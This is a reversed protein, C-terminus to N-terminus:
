NLPPPRGSGSQATTSETEPLVQKVEQWFCFMFKREGVKVQLWVVRADPVTPMFVSGGVGQGPFLTTRRFAGTWTMQANEIGGITAANGANTSDSLNAAAATNQAGGSHGHAAAGVDAVAGLMVLVAGATADNAAKATQISHQVELNDIVTEPDIVFAAPACSSPLDGLCTAYTVDHPDVDIRAGSENAIEVRLAILSQSEHEFSVAVRVGGDARTLVEHGANWIVDPGRPHLSIIPPPTVCGAAQLLLLLTPSVVTALRASTTMGALSAVWM